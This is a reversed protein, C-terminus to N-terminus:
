LLAVKLGVARVGSAHRKEGEESEAVYNADPRGADDEPLRLACVLLSNGRSRRAQEHIYDRAREM